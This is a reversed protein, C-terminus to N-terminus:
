IVRVASIWGKKKELGLCLTGCIGGMMCEMM